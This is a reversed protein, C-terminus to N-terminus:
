KYGRPMIIEDPMVVPPERRKEATQEAETGSTPHMEPHPEDHVTAPTVAGSAEEESDDPKVDQPDENAKAGEPEEEIAEKPNEATPPYKKIMESAYRKWWEGKDTLAVLNMGVSPNYDGKFTIEVDYDVGEHPILRGFCDMIAAAQKTQAFSMESIPKREGGSELFIHM